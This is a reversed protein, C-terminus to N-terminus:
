RERAVLDSYAAYLRETLPGPCHPMEHSGARRVPMLEFMSNTLFAEDSSLLNQPGETVLSCSIELEHTLEIVAERTVGPLFGCGMNPTFLVGDKAYFINSSAAESLNGATTVMVADDDGRDLAEQRAFMSDLYNGSKMSSLPSSTNRKIGSVTLSVGKRFEQPSPPRYPRATIFIGAGGARQLGKPGAAAGGTVTIRIRADEGGSLNNEELLKAVAAEIRDAPLPAELRLARCSEALRELHRWLRFPFGGYGRVTEFASDGFLVATDDVSILARSLPVLEGNIFVKEEV